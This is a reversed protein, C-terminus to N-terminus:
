DPALSLLSIHLSGGFHLLGPLVEVLFVASAFESFTKRRKELGVEDHVPARPLTTPQSVISCARFIELEIEPSIMPHKLKVLGELRM